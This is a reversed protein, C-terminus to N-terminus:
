VALPAEDDLATCFRVRTSAAREGEAAFVQGLAWLVVTEGRANVFSGRENIMSGSTSSKSMQLRVHQWFPQHFVFTLESQASEHHRNVGAIDYVRDSLLTHGTEDDIIWDWFILTHEMDHKTSM